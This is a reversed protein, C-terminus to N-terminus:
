KESEEIKKRLQILEQQMAEFREAIPDPINAHDMTAEPVRDGITKIIRGPIGIVTSNSPVSRLVVSNAGIKVFDGITINGLVKAGAGVVVHNGLTPHRKGREKGTGGLTVGQFLTVFDGIIATEGIVVGMGHDIFFGRGIKAKPHIEIGTLWRALQSILRPILPINLNSLRHALRYALLAHFGSYTLFVELRSTAAPDREFVAHLDDKIRKFMRM